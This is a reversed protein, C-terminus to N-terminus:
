PPCGLRMMWPVRCQRRFRHRGHRGRRSAAGSPTTPGFTSAVESWVIDVCTFRFVILGFV